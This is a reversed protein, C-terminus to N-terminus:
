VETRLESLGPTKKPTLLGKYYFFVKRSRKTVNSFENVGVSGMNTKIFCFNLLSISSVRRVYSM